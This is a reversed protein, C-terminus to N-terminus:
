LWKKRLGGTGRRVAIDGAENPQAFAFAEFGLATNLGCVRPQFDKVLVNHAAVIRMLLIIVQTSMM